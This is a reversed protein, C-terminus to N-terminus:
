PRCFLTVGMGSCTQGAAADFCDATEGCPQLCRGSVPPDITTDEGECSEPYVATSAGLPACAADSLCPDRRAAARWNTCPVGVAPVCHMLEPDCELGLPCMGDTCPLLCVQERIGMVNRMLCSGAFSADNCEPNSNCPACHGPGAAVCRGNAIDCIPATGPCYGPTKPAAGITRESCETCVLAVPHCVTPDACEVSACPDTPGGDIMVGTAVCAGGASCTEGPGCQAPDTCATYCRGELCIESAMCDAM